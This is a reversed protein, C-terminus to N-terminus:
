SMKTLSPPLYQREKKMVKNTNPNIWTQMANLKFILHYDDTIRERCWHCRSINLHSWNFTVVPLSNDPLTLGSSPTPIENDSTDGWILCCKMHWQSTPKFLIHQLHPFGAEERRIFM